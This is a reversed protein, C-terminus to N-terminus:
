KVIDDTCHVILEGSLYNWTADKKIAAWEAKTGNFTINTFSKNRFAMASISVVTKPITITVTESGTDSFAYAGIVRTQDSVMYSTQEIKYDARFLFLYPHEANGLYRIGDLKNFNLEPCYSFAYVGVTEISDPLTVNKLVDCDAFAQYEVDKVHNGLMVSVLAPCQYFAEYGICVTQDPIEIETLNESQRFANSYIVKTDPHIICSSITKNKAKVLLVYPTNSNGLYCANDYESYQLQNCETFCYQGIKEIGSGLSITKLSSCGFFVSNGIETVSNPIQVSQLNVCGEFADNGISTVGNPITIRVLGLCGSFAQEAISAVSGDNPITCVGFGQILAHDDKQIICNGASRYVPNGTAITMSILSHCDRFACPEIKSVGSGLSIATLAPCNSFAGFLINGGTVTVSRLATPLYYVTYNIASATSGHYYQNANTGGPYSDTGFIYGFPFQDADSATVDIKAGVFPITLHELASCGNLLGGPLRTIGSGISLTKLGTCGTFAGAGVTQVSDPITIETLRTCGSFANEGIETVAAGDITEPISLKGSFSRDAIGTVTVAGSGDNYRFTLENPGPQKSAPKQDTTKEPFGATDTVVPDIKAVNGTANQCGSLILVFASLVAFILLIRKM